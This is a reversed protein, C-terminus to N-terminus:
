GRRFLEVRMPPLDGINWTITNDIVRAGNNGSVFSLTNPVPDTVVVNQATAGGTNKVTIRIISMEVPMSSRLAEKTLM